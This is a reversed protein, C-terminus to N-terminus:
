LAARAARARPEPLRRAPWLHLTLTRTRPSRRKLRLPPTLDQPLSSLREPRARHQFPTAGYARMATTVSQTRIRSTRGTLLKRQASARQMLSLLSSGVNLTSTASSDQSFIQPQKRAYAEVAAKIDPSSAGAAALVRSFMGNDDALMAIAM